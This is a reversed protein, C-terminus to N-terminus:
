ESLWDSSISCNEDQKYEEAYDECDSETIDYITTVGDYESAATNCDYSITCNGKSCGFSFLAILIALGCAPIYKKMM